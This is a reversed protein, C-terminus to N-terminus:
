LRSPTRSAASPAPEPRVAKAPEPNRRPSPGVPADPRKVNRPKPADPPAPVRMSGPGQVVDGGRRRRGVEDLFVEIENKFRNDRPPPPPTQPRGAVKAKDAQERRDNIRKIIAGVFLVVAAFLLRMLEKDMALIPGVALM